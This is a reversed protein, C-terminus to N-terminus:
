GRVQTENKVSFEIRDRSARRGNYKVVLGGSQEQPNLRAQMIRAILSFSKPNYSRVNTTMFFHKLCSVRSLLGTLSQKFNENLFGYMIPNSCVSTMASLHCGAFLMLTVKKDEESNGFPELTDIVINLINLPAWSLFFIVSVTILMKNIKRRRQM